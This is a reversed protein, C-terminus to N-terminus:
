VFSPRTSTRTSYRRINPRTSARTVLTRESGVVATSSQYSSQESFALRPNHSQFNSQPKPFRMRRRHFLSTLAYGTAYASYYCTTLRRRGPEEGMELGALDSATQSQEKESIAHGDISDKAAVQTNQSHCPSREVSSSGSSHSILPSVQQSEHIQDIASGQVTCASSHLPSASCSYSLCIEGLPPPPPSHLTIWCNNRVGCSRATSHLLQGGDVAAKSADGKATSKPSLLHPPWTGSTAAKCAFERRCINLYKIARRIKERHLM